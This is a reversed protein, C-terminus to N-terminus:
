CCGNFKGQAHAADLFEEARQIGAAVEPTIDAAAASPGATAASAAAGAAAPTIPACAAAVLGTGLLVLVVWGLAFRDSLQEQSLRM